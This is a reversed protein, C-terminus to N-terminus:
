LTNRADPGYSFIMPKSSTSLPICFPGRPGRSGLALLLPMDGIVMAIRASSAQFATLCGARRLDPSVGGEGLVTFAPRGPLASRTTTKAIQELTSQTSQECATGRSANEAVPKAFKKLLELLAAVAFGGVRPHALPRVPLNRWFIKRAGQADILDVRQRRLGAQRTVFQQRTEALMQGIHDVM